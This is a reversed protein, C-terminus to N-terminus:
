EGGSGGVLVRSPRLLGGSIEAVALLRGSGDFIAAESGNPDCGAPPPVSRGHVLQAAQEAPLTIKPLEEVARAVPLLRQRAVEASIDLACADECCFSGVRTRRLSTIYGGCGLREGLDRAISRIYTGKGCHVEIELRPYEYALLDISYVVITRPTLSVEKGKRALDYARRGAVHAASYAPPVQEIAGKFKSLATLVEERAPANACAVPKIEGDADDTDSVAGLKIGARYVKSMRQVYEALRTAPGVCLVLVGTALPDLTGTHGLRTKRPFWALARNVVDRSTLGTPKDIVLLGDCDARLLIL